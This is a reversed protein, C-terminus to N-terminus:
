PSPTQMAKVHMDEDPNSDERLTALLSPSAISSSTGTNSPLTFKSVASSAISGLSECRVRLAHSTELALRRLSFSKTSKQSKKGSKAGAEIGLVAQKVPSISAGRSGSRRPKKPTRPTPLPVTSREAPRGRKLNAKAGLEHPTPSVVQASQSPGPNRTATAAPASKSPSNSSHSYCLSPSPPTRTNHDNPLKILTNNSPSSVSQSSVSSTASAPHSTLSSSYNVSKIAINDLGPPPAIRSSHSPSGSISRTEARTPHHPTLSKNSPTPSLQVNTRDNLNLDRVSISVPSQQRLRMTAGKTALVVPSKASDFSSTRRRKRPFEDAFPDDLPVVQPESKPDGLNILYEVFPHYQTPDLLPGHASGSLSWVSVFPRLAPDENFCDDNDGSHWANRLQSPIGVHDHKRKRPNGTAAVPKRTKTRAALRSLYATVEISWPLVVQEIWPHIVHPRRGACVFAMGILALVIDAMPQLEEEVVEDHALPPYLKSGDFGCHMAYAGLM